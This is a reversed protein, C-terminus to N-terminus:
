RVDVIIDTDTERVIIGPRARLFNVLAAPDTSSFVGDIAFAQLSPDRILLQRRNYRNFETAVEQLPTDEFILERHTWATAVGPNAAHIKRPRGEAGIVLQQGANILSPPSQSPAAEPTVAVTGELVTVTTGSNNSYVDFQTGVARVLTGRSEVVFPRSANKAVTFLAQGDLLDVHREHETFRVRMRSRANLEVTSGDSLVVSRQEAVATSYTNRLSYAWIGLAAGIVLLLSAALGVARIWVHRRQSIHGAEDAGPLYLQVVNQHDSKAEDLLAELSWEARIELAGSQDWLSAMELYAAMHAPSEKLWALFAKRGRENPEATRFEVFWDAAQKRIARSM